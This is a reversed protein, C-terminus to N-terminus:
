KGASRKAIEDALEMVFENDAGLFDKAADYALKLYNLGDAELKAEDSAQSLYLYTLTLADPQKKHLKIRAKLLAIYAPLADSESYMGLLEQYSLQDSPDLILLQNSLQKLAKADKRAFAISILHNYTAPHPNYKLSTNLLEVAEPYNKLEKAAIGAIRYADAKYTSDTYLKAAAFAQTQADPYNQQKLYIYSLNYHAPGYQSDLDISTLFHRTATALDNNLLEVYGLVYYGFAFKDGLVISRTFNDFSLQLLEKESKGMQAGYKLYVEYFYQGKARYALPSSPSTLLLSDALVPIDFKVLSTTTNMERRVQMLDEKPSLDKLGFLQHMMSVAFYELVHNAKRVFVAPYENKPDKAELWGWATLYQRNKVLSDYEAFNTQALAYFPLLWLVCLLLLGKKM